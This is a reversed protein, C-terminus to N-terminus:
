EGKSNEIPGDTRNVAGGRRRAILAPAKGPQFTGARAARRPAHTNRSECDRALRMGVSRSLMAGPVRAALRPWPSRM